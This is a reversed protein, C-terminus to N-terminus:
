KVDCNIKYLSSYINLPDQSYDVLSIDVHDLKSGYLSLINHLFTRWIEFITTCKEIYQQYVEAFSTIFSTISSDNAIIYDNFKIFGRYKEILDMSIVSIFHIKDKTSHIKYINTLLENKANDVLLDSSEIIEKMERVENIESTLWIGIDNSEVIDLSIYKFTDLLAQYHTTNIM